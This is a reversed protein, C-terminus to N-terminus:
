STVAPLMRSRPSSMAASAAGVLARARPMKRAKWYGSAIPPTETTWNRRWAIAARLSRSSSEAHELHPEVQGLPHLPEPHIGREGLAVEVLAERAALALAVLDQLHRHEFGISAMRSSVSEPRSM